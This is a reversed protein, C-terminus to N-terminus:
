AAERFAAKAEKVEADKNGRGWLKILTKNLKILQRGIEESETQNPALGSEAWASIADRVATIADVLRYTKKGRTQQSNHLVKIPGGDVSASLIMMPTSGDQGWSTIIILEEEGGNGPLHLSYGRDTLHKAKFKIM